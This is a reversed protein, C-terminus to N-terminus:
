VLTGLNLDNQDLDGTVNAVTAVVTDVVFDGTTDVWITADLGTGGQQVDVSAARDADAIGLSDLLGDIDISDVGTADFGDILDGADAIDNYVSSDAGDGGILTDAGAGGVLIDDGGNGSLVDAGGFGRLIDNDSDTGQINDHQDSGLSMIRTFVGDGNGDSESWSFAIRGDVLMTVQPRHQTGAIEDTVIFEDGIANGDADFQRAFIAGGDGDGQTSEWTVIFGGGPLTAAEPALQDGAAYDNVQFVGGLPDGAADFIRGVIGFGDGDQGTAPWTVVYNGDGLLTMAVQDAPVPTTVDITVQKEPGVKVGASDYHQSMIHDPVSSNDFWTVVFGGGALALVEPSNLTGGSNLMIDDGISNGEQDFVRMRGTFSASQWVVV